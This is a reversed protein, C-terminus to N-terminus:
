QISGFCGSAGGTGKVWAESSPKMTSGAFRVVFGDQIAGVEGRAEHLDVPALHLADPRVRVVLGKKWPHAAAVAEADHARPQEVRSAVARWPWYAEERVWGM